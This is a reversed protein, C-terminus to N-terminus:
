LGLPALLQELEVAFSRDTQSRAKALNGRYAEISQRLADRLDSPLNGANTLQELASIVKDLRALNAIPDRDLQEIRTLLRAVSALESSKRRVAIRLQRLEDVTM